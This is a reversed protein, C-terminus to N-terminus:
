LTALLVRKRAILACWCLANRVGAVTDMLLASMM